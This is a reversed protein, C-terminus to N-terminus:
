RRASPALSRQVRFCRHPRQQFDPPQTRATVDDVVVGYSSGTVNGLEFGRFNTSFWVIGEPSCKRLAAHILTVHDRGVDFDRRARKSRSFSPPDVIVVDFAGDGAADELFALVDQCVARHQQPDLGNEALNDAAWQTTKQSLDMSTTSSAGALAAHVSFSGTYAFLNLVRRDRAGAAVMRRTTRHDLFLGPDRRAGLRVRLRAPGESVILELASADADEAEVEGGRERERVQVFVRSREIALVDAAVDAAAHAFEVFAAGGGHRPAYAVFVAASTPAKTHADDGAFVDVQFPLEPIDRDYARYCNVQERKRWPLLRAQNKQLRNKWMVLSAAVRPDTM